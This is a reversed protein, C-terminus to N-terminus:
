SASGDGRLLPARCAARLQEEVPWRGDVVAHPVVPEVEAALATDALKRADRAAGRRELRRRREEDPCTLWVVRIPVSGLRERLREVERPEGLARTFPAAVVVDHGLLLNEAATVLVSEYAQDGLVDRVRPDDLDDDAAGVLGAIVRTLPATVVDRDLLFARQDMALRSALTSKGTGPAGAVIWANGPVPGSM